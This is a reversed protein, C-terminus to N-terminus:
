GRWKDPEHSSGQIRTDDNEDNTSASENINKHIQKKEEDNNDTYIPFYEEDSRDKLGLRVGLNICLIIIGIVIIYTVM